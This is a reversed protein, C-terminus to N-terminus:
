HGGLSFAYFQNSPLGQYYGSGWYVTGNVIAPASWVSGTAAFRWLIQGTAADLAYMNNGFWVTDGVYVVGNAESAPGIDASGYPDAVQWIFKGTAPDLAAWSGGAVPQGSALNYPAEGQDSIPVYIRTGDFATGWEIGGLAGGAGVLTDWVVNGNSPNLAWYVGSKQGAGVLTTGGVRLLNLSGGFDDDPGAISPCWGAGSGLVCAFNWADWGELKHGWNIRGTRVNLSVVSDFYDDPSTCGADSTGAAATQEQCATAADPTTYNNGTAVYVSGTAPDVAPSGWVAGGSYGCGSPPSIQACPGSNAPVMYTQWLIRGTAVQLAVVSGRFTCCPYFPFLADTESNSSVGIIVEGGYVLPNGTIIAAPNSDVQTSWLLRGSFRNVAFVHAGGARELLANDGLILKAGDVVPSVRAYDGSLGTYNSIPAQWLLSGNSANVANLYGGSDPFYVGGGQVTPTASVDGHTTFVWKPALQAVNGVGITSEDPQTRSNSLDHGSSPWAAGAGTLGGLRAHGAAADTAGVLLASWSLVISLAAISRAAHGARPRPRRRRSATM